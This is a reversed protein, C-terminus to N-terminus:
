AVSEARDGGKPRVRPALVVAVLAIVV